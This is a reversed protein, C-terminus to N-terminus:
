AAKRKTTIETLNRTHVSCGSKTFKLHETISESTVAYFSISPFKSVDALLWGDIGDFYESFAKACFKRGAGRMVSPSLEVNVEKFTKCQLRLPVRGDTKILDHSAGNHATRTLGNFENAIIDEILLGIIRGDRLRDYAIMEPVDGIQIRGHLDITYKGPLNLKRKNV